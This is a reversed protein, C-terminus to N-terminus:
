RRKMGHKMCTAFWQSGFMSPYSLTSFFDSSDPHHYHTHEFHKFSKYLIEHHVKLRRTGRQAPQSRSRKHQQQKAAQKGPGNLPWATSSATAEQTQGEVERGLCGPSVTICM